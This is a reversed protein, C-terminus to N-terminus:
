RNPGFKGGIVEGRGACDHLRHHTRSTTAVIDHTAAGGDSWRQFERGSQPSVFSIRHRSNVIAQFPAPATATVDDFGVSLGTPSSALTITVTAPHITLKM